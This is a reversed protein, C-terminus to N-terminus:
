IIRDRDVLQFTIHLLWIPASGLDCRVCRTLRRSQGPSCIPAYMIQLQHLVASTCTHTQIPPATQVSLHPQYGCGCHTMLFLPGILAVAYDAIPATGHLRVAGLVVGVGGVDLVASTCTHTQIPPATQVSLHPQYGCGCHTMLFLPGILAVAYDAIPATGHLRVAGLVVGVGGM